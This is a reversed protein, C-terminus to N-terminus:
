TLEQSSCAGGVGVSGVWILNIKSTCAFVLFLFAKAECAWNRSGLKDVWDNM